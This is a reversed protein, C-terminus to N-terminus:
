NKIGSIFKKLETENLDNQEDDIIYFTLVYDNIELNMIRLRSLKESNSSKSKYVFWYNESISGNIGNTVVRIVNVRRNNKSELIYEAWMLEYKTISRINLNTNGKLDNVNFLYCAIIPRANEKDSLTFIPEFLENKFGERDKKSLELNKPFEYDNIFNRFDSKDALTFKDSLEIGIGIQDIEIRNNSVKLKPEFDNKRNKIEKTLNM